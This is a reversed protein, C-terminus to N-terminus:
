KAMPPPPPLGADNSVTVTDPVVCSSLDFLMYELAKEQPSLDVNDCSAPPPKSTDDCGQGGGGFGGGGGGGSCNTTNGAVHLDSFVARGCYAPTSADAPTAAGVPTDFSFYMTSGGQGSANDATIWPQSPKNAASVTSNFRPQYIALETAPVGNTGLAGNEDLWTSLYLGKQFPQTTGNLTIDVNGGIPGTSNGGQDQTWSALNSGWDAPATYSQSSSIPGSFWSYHFHSGFARGGANLYQELAPPNANYTEGGECSLLVVDYPMLQAQSSWLSTSSAPAGAMPNSEAKGAGGGGGGGSKGGSFIHVHGATSTGPVYESAAVGMRLLLCELTDAGGTSVALDPMNDDTDGAPITGPLTLTKAAQANDTCAAVNIKLSRRWKGVQLVLPVNSGVPVNKLTFSGDVGTTTNTVAGSAFLAGCSCAEAGTPVGKPLPTLPVAPVYVAVGLLPDKGAPDYVKGTITTTGGGTCAVNCQLGAPCAPETTTTGGGSGSGTGTGNVLITGGENMMTSTTTQNCVGNAMWESLYTGCTTASGAAGTVEGQCETQNAGSLMACCNTLGTCGTGVVPTGVGGGDMQFIGSNNSGSCAAAAFAGSALGAVLAIGFFSRRM